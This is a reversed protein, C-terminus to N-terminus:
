PSEKEVLITIDRGEREDSHAIKWGVARLQELWWKGPKIVLHANRGDPLHANAARTAIVLYAQKAAVRFIHDLVAPLHTPEVHELVDTCVVLDAPKPLGDKGPVGPDYELVRVPTRDKLAGRLRGAGCGYDLIVDPKLVRAVSLVADAHKAGDGGWGKQTLRLGFLQERYRKSALDQPLYRYAGAHRMFMGLHGLDIAHVSKAALRWAMATSTAGVCLFVPGGPTGVEEMLRDIEAYADRRPADIERVSTAGDLTSLRLSRETGKVLTVDKGEWLRRIHWWYEPTDIWPASDPRSIFSSGYTMGDNYLATYKPSGYEQWAPKTGKAYVNPICVIGGWRVPGKLMVRLEKSLKEDRVQSICDHGLALKLEGDGFRALNGGDLAWALTDGESMVKPYKM